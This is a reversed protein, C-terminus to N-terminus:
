VGVPAGTAPATRELGLAAAAAPRTFLFGQGLPCGHKVLFALQRDTEIGEAVVDLRMADALGLIARVIAEADRDFPVRHLFQRDMKLMHVPLDKLRSLSSHEAGFDDIAIRVGAGRLEELLPVILEPQQMAGQETVELVFQRRPLGHRDISELLHDAFGPRRLERPSANFHLQVAVDDARWAAAQRCLEEVVWAGLPEILGTDEALPLFEGPAVLGREPDQWRVLAEVGYVRRGGLWFIPQYGLRLQGEDIATRLRGTTRLRERADRGDPVHVHARGRGSAKGQHMAAEAERLLAPSAAGVAIGVTAGTHFTAEALTVPPRLAARIAAAAAQAAATDGGDLLVTFEDGGRRAVLAGAPAGGRLRGAVEILLADGADWDFSANILRLGDLGVHLVAALAGDLEGAARALASGNPLGTLADALGAAHQETIDSAVGVMGAPAGEGDTLPTYSTQWVVDGVAVSATFAEGALARRCNAVVAPAGGWVSFVSRGVVEGPRQGLTALGQGEALTFVGDADTAFLVMGAREVVAHLQQEATRARARDSVDRLSVAFFTEGDIPLRALVLDAPFRSGDARQAHVQAPRGAAASAAHPGPAALRALAARHATRHELPIVLEALDEGIAAARPVGFTAAAAPNWEVIRGAADTVVLCEVAVEILANLPGWHKM